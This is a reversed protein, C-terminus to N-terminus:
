LGQLASRVVAGATTPTGQWDSILSPFDCGGVYWAWATWSLNNQRAYDIVSQTYTAGCTTDGFETIMVPDTEALYGWDNYWDSPQKGSYDYPHTAYVINYGEIRNYKVQSLDYAYDLGGIIVLNNSGARRVTDYLEQMGVVTFGDGSDGGNKWVNWGVDHPENYLEFLVRGDDKYKTAVQRWFTRSNTDAMRQAAADGTGGRDSWHLDLIVDLGAAKASQVHVDVTSPYPGWRLWYAQNLAIRVVNAGWGAILRFDSDSLNEGDPNWELSPRCLGRFVHPTGDARFIRNDETYYGGPAV